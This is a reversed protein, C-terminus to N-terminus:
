SSLKGTLQRACFKGFFVLFHENPFAEYCSPFPWRWLKMKSIKDESVSCFHHSGLRAYISKDNAGIVSTRSNDFEHSRFFYPELGTEILLQCLYWQGFLTIKLTMVQPWAALSFLYFWCCSYDMFTTVSWWIMSYDHEYWNKNSM